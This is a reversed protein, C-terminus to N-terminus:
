YGTTGIVFGSGVLGLSIYIINSIVFCVASILFYKLLSTETDLVQPIVFPFALALYATHVGGAIFGIVWFLVGAYTLINIRKLITKRKVVYILFLAFQLVHYLYDFLTYTDYASGVLWPFPGALARLVLLPFTILRM